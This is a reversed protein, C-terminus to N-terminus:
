KENDLDNDLFSTKKEEATMGHEKELYQGIVSSNIGNKVATKIILYLIFLGVGWMIISFLLTIGAM